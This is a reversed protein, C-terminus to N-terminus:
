PVTSLGLAFPFNGQNLGRCRAGRFLFVSFPALLYLDIKTLSSDQYARKYLPLSESLPFPTWLEGTFINISPAHQIVRADPPQIAFSHTPIKSLKTCYPRPFPPLMYNSLKSSCNDYLCGYFSVFSALNRRFYSISPNTFSFYIQISSALFSQLDLNPFSFHRTISWLLFFLFPLFSFSRFPSFYQFIPLSVFTTPFHVHKLQSFVPQILSVFSISLLPPYFSFESVLYFNQNSYLHSILLYPFFLIFFVHPFQLSKVHAFVYM